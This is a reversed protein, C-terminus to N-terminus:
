GIWPAHQGEVAEDHRPGQAPGASVELDPDVGGEVGDHGGASDIRSRGCPQIVSSM